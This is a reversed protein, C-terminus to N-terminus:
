RKALVIHNITPFRDLEQGIRVSTGPASLVSSQSAQQYYKSSVSAQQAHM